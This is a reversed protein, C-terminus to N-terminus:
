GAIIEHLLVDHHTAKGKGALQLFAAQYSTIFARWYKGWYLKEGFVSHIQPTFQRM